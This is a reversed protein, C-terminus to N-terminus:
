FQNWSVTENASYTFTQKEVSPISLSHSCIKTFLIKNSYDHGNDVAAKLLLISYIDCLMHDVFSFINVVPGKVPFFQYGRSWVREVCFFIYSNKLFTKLNLYLQYIVNYINLDFKKVRALRTHSFLHKM